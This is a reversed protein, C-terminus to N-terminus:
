VLSAYPLKKSRKFLCLRPSWFIHKSLKVVCNDYLSPVQSLDLFPEWCLKQTFSEQGFPTADWLIGKTRKRLKSGLLLKNSLGKRSTGYCIITVWWKKTKRLLVRSRTLTDHLYVHLCTNNDSIMAANTLCWHGLAFTYERQTSM